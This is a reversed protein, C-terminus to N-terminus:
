IPSKQASGDSFATDDWIRRISRFGCMLEAFAPNEHRASSHLELDQVAVSHVLYGKM